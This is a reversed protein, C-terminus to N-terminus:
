SENSAARGGGIAPVQADVATEVVREATGGFLGGDFGRTARLSTSTGVPEDPQVMLPPGVERPQGVANVSQWSAIALIRDATDPLRIFTAVTEGPLVVLPQGVALVRSETDLLEILYVGGALGDFSFEGSETGTTRGVVQGDELNRIQLLPYSM